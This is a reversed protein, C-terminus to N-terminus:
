AAHRTGGINAFARAPDIRHAQSARQVRKIEAGTIAIRGGIKVVRVTGDAIRYKLTRLCNNFRERATAEDVPFLRTDFDDTM